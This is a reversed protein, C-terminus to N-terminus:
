FLSAISAKAADLYPMPFLGMAIVFFLCIAVAFAIAISPQIASPAAEDEDQMYMSVM